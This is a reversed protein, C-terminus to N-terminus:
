SVQQETAAERKQKRKQKREWRADATSTIRQTRGAGILEPRDEPRMRYWHARSYKRRALWENLTYSLTTM